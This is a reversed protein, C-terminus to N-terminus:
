EPNPKDPPPDLEEPARARLFKWGKSLHHATFGQGAISVLEGDTAKGSALWEDAEARTAFTQSVIIPKGTVFERFYTRYEELKQIDRVYLLAVAAIRLAEDESSDKQYKDSITGLTKMVAEVDFDWNYAM